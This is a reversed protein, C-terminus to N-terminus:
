FMTIPSHNVNKFNPTNLKSVYKIHLSSVMCKAKTPSSLKEEVVHLTSKFRKKFRLKLTPLGSEKM